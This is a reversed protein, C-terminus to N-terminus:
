PKRAIALLDLYTVYFGPRHLLYDGSDPDLLAIVRNRMAPALYPEVRGRIDQLYGTLYTHEDTDLPARRIACFPTLREVALGGNQLVEALHRGVFCKRFGPSAAQLAHLQAQRVTLEIEAPWPLIIRHLTDQELMALRGGSRLVRRMESLAAEPDPLSYLSHACWVLEFSGTAFPLADASAGLIRIDTHPTAAAEARRRATALFGAAVDIGIVVAPHPEGDAHGRVADLRAALRVAHSGDGCAVDLVRDRPGFPLVAIVAQLEAAHARNYAALIPAYEPLDDPAREVNGTLAPNPAPARANQQMM